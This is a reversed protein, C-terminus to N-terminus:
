YVPLLLSDLNVPIIYLVACLFLGKWGTDIKILSKLSNQPVNVIDHFNEKNFGNVGLKVFDDNPAFHESVFKVGDGYTEIVVDFPLTVIYGTNMFSRIGPCKVIFKTTLALSKLKSIPCTKLSTNFKQVEKNNSEVWDRKLENAKLVPYAAALGPVPNFFHIQDKPM